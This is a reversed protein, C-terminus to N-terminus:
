LLTSYTKEIWKARLKLLKQEYEIGMEKAVHMGWHFLKSAPIKRTGEESINVLFSCGRSESQVRSCSKFRLAEPVLVAPMVTLSFGLLAEANGASKDKECSALLHGLHIHKEMQTEPNRLIIFFSKDAKYIGDIICSVYKVSFIFQKHNKTCGDKM